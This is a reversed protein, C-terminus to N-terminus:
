AVKILVLSRAYIKINTTTDTFTNAVYTVNITTPSAITFQINMSLKYANSTESSPDIYLGRPIGNVRYILTTTQNTTTNRTMTCDADFMAIYTGAALSPIVLSGDTNSLSSNTVNIINGGDNVYYTTPTYSVGNTGNTGNTGNIGGLGGPSVTGSNAVTLGAATLSQNFTTYTATYKITISTATKSVVEYYGGLQVFILQGIGCWGTSYSGTDSVSITVNTNVAPQIYTATLVTFANEGIDGTDGKPGTPITIENCDTCM